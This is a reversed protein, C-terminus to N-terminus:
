STTKALRFQGQGKLPLKGSPITRVKDPTFEAGAKVLERIYGVQGKSAALRLKESSQAMPEAM